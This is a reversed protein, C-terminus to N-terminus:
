EKKDWTPLQEINKNRFKLSIAVLSSLIEFISRWSAIAVLCDISQKSKTNEIIKSVEPHGDNRILEWVVDLLYSNLKFLERVRSKVKDSEFSLNLSSHAFDNRLRRILHLSNRTSLAVLGLRYSFDIKASFNGLPAYAGVFLDDEKEPSPVLKAKILYELAEDMLAASVIVTGRESEHDFQKSYESLLRVFEDDFNANENM